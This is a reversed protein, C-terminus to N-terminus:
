KKAVPKDVTKCVGGCVEGGLDASEMLRVCCGRSPLSDSRHGDPVVEGVLGVLHEGRGSAAFEGGCDGEHLRQVALEGAM